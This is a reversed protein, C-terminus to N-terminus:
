LRWIIALGWIFYTTTLLLILGLARLRWTPPKIYDTVVGWLGIWAHWCLSLMFLTSLIQVGTQSFLAKWHEYRLPTHLVLVLTLFVVYSMVVLSTARQLVWQRVGKGVGLRPSDADALPQM